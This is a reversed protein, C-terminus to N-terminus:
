PLRTGNRITDAARQQPTRNDPMGAGSHLGALVGRNAPYPRLAPPLDTSLTVRRLADVAAQKQENV